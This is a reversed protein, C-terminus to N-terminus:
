NASPLVELAEWIQEHEELNFVKTDFTKNLDLTDRVARTMGRGLIVIDTYPLVTALVAIDSSGTSRRLPKARGDTFVNWIDQKLRIAPISNFAHSQYLSTLGDFGEPKGGFHNWVIVPLDTKQKEWFTDLTEQPMSEPLSRFRAGLRVLDRLHRTSQKLLAHDKKLTSGNSRIRLRASPAKETASTESHDKGLANGERQFTIHPCTKLIWAVTRETFVDKWFHRYLLTDNGKIFAQIARFVQADEISQNHRFSLNGSFQRLIDLGEQAKPGGMQLTERHFTNELYVLKQSQVHAGIKEYSIRAKDAVPEGLRYGIFNELVPTDFYIVPLPSREGRLMSLKRSLDRKKPGESYVNIEEQIAKDLAEFLTDALAQTARDLKNYNLFIYDYLQEWATDDLSNGDRSEASM